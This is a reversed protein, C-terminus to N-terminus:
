SADEIEFKIVNYNLNLLSPTHSAIYSSLEFNAKKCEQLRLSLQCVITCVRAISVTHPTKDYLKHCYVLASTLV